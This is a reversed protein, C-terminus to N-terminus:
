RRWELTTWSRGTRKQTESPAGRSPTAARADGTCLRLDPLPPHTDCGHKCASSPPTTSSQGRRLTTPAPTCPPPPQPRQVSHRHPRRWDGTGGNARIPCLPPPTPLVGQAGVAVPCPAAKPTTPRRKGVQLQSVAGTAPMELLWRYQYLRSPLPPSHRADQISACRRPTPATTAASDRVGQEGRAEGGTAEFQTPPPM